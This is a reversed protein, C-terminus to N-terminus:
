GFWATDMLQMVAEVRKLGGTQPKQASLQVIPAAPLVDWKAEFLLGFELEGVDGDEEGEIESCADEDSSISMPRAVADQLPPTRSPAQRLLAHWRAAGAVPQNTAYGTADIVRNPTTRM